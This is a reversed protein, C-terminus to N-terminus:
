GSQNGGSDAPFWMSFTSGEGGRSVVDIRGKHEGVIYRTIALGIGTGKRRRVTADKGRYFPEFIQQLDEEPIGIGQDTVEIRVGGGHASVAVAILAGPGSYKAANSLLNILCQAVADSDHQVAPLGLEIDVRMRRDQLEASSEVSEIASQLTEELRGLVMYYRKAGREIASFDLVNDVLRSLRESERVIAKYDHMREDETESLGLLLSEAKLRIQTIPSRLEHSVNAAFDAKMRAHQLENGVLRGTALAGLVIMVVALVVMAVRRNRRATQQAVLAIPDRATVVLSLEPLWPALSRRAFARGSPEVSPGLIRGVVPSTPQTLGSAVSRIERIVADQNLAFAYLENGWWTLAWLGKGM